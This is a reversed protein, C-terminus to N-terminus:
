FKITKARVSLTKIWKKLKIWKKYPTHSLSGAENRQMHSDLQGLVMEQFSGEKVM